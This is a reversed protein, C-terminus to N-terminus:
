VVTRAAADRRVGNKQVTAYSNRASAASVSYSTDTFYLTLLTVLSEARSHLVQNVRPWFELIDNSVTTGIIEEAVDEEIGIAPEPISDSLGPVGQDTMDRM